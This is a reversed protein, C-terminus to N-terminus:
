SSAHIFTRNNPSPAQAVEAQPAFAANVRFHHWVGLGAVVVTAIGAVFLMLRKQASLLTTKKNNSNAM